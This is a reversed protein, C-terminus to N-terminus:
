GYDAASPLKVTEMLMTCCRKNTANLGDVVERDHASAGVGYDIIIKYAHAFMYLLYLATACRYKDVCGDTNEWITSM